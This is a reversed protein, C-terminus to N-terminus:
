AIYTGGFVGGSLLLTVHFMVVGDTLMCAQGWYWLIECVDVVYM